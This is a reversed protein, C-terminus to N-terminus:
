RRVWWSEVVGVVEVCGKMGKGDKVVGEGGFVFGGWVRM